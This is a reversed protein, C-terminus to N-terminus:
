ESEDKLEWVQAIKRLEEVIQKTQEIIYEASQPNKRFGAHLVDNRLKALKYTNSWVNSLQTIKEQSVTARYQELYPSIYRNGQADKQGAGGSLLLEMEPRNSIEVQPDINFHYCLLSPLWERAMSLAQVIQGKEAYWEVMRLQRILAAQPSITYETPNKLGFNGYDNEVRRLLTTFPPLSESISSAAATIKEPLLAAEQMVDMPRLLQLGQAINDINNALEETAPDGNHLLEALAQGNGTKLFQDTATTWELLSVIPLLDFIPTQNTEENQADRAGYILGNIKVQRVVRLYSVAILAVIPLFRFGYTIDFLVEDNDQLYKTLLAFIKWLEEPSSSEPVNKIPHLEVKGALRKQLADWNSETRDKPIGKEATKTLLVYLVKPKYFKVMAEQFFETECEESGDPSIYITKDYGKNPNFGLFSIAKM